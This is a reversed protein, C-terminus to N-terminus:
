ATDKTWHHALQPYPDAPTTRYVALHDPSAVFLYEATGIQRIWVTSGCAHKPGHRPGCLASM